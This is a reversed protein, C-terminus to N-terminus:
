VTTNPSGWHVLWSKVSTWTKSIDGSAEKLKESQWNKKETKLINNVRNRLGKYVRWDDDVNTENAKRQAIDRQKMLDKTNLSLWPAFNTRVQFVKIPAM